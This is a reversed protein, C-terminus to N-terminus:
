KSYNINKSNIKGILKFFAAVFQMLDSFNQHEKKTKCFNFFILLIISIEFNRLKRLIFKM